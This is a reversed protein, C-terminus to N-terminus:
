LATLIQALKKVIDDKRRQYAAMDGANTIFCMEILINECNPRMVLLRPHQSQSEVKVGKIGRTEGRLPLGMQSALMQAIQSALTLEITSPHEPVFVEVGTARPNTFANWHLDVLLDNKAFLGKLKQLVTRNPEYDSTDNHVERTPDITLIERTVADRLEIALEAEDYGNGHAGTGRGSEDLHHGALLFIKRKSM